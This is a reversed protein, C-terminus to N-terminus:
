QSVVWKGFDPEPDGVHRPKPKGTALGPWHKALAMPSLVVDPMRERYNAARLRVDDPTAGTARIQVTAKNLPGRAAPTLGHWDIECEEAIAEFLEDRRRSPPPLINGERGQEKGKGELRSSEPIIGPVSGSADLIRGDQPQPYISPRPKDIRQHELWSRVQVLRKGDAEYRVILGAEALETMWAGVQRENHRRDLPWVEAKILSLNDLGIGEDDVYTWLGVFTLRAGLSLGAVTLSRFFEPKVTRIRAM